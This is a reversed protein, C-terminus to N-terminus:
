FPSIFDKFFPAERDKDSLLPNSSAWDINLDPDNWRIALESSKNYYNSCKYQFVCEDTITKFGHAFGSPVYLIQKKDAKLSFKLHRGYTPSNKRVDVIVDLVEGKLVRVLKAQDFPPAQMHLGRVVDRVSCSENDQVFDDVIGAIEALKARNFSEFFYGRADNFVNLSVLKVGQIPYTEVNM